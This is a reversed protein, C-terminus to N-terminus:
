PQQEQAARARIAAAVQAGWWDCRAVATVNGNRLQEAIGAAEEWVKAREDAIRRALAAPAPLPIKALGKEICRKTLAVSSRLGVLPNDRLLDLVRQAEPPPESPYEPEDRVRQKCAERMAEASAGERLAVEAPTLCPGLYRLHAVAEPTEINGFLDTWRQEAGNWLLVYRDRKDLEEMAHAGNRETNMPVGPKDADWGNPDTM